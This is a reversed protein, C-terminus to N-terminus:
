SSLFVEHSFAVHAAVIVVLAEHNSFFAAFVGEVAEFARDV